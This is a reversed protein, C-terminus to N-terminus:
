NMFSSFLPEIHELAYVRDTRIFQLDPGIQWDADGPVAVKIIEQGPFRRAIERLPGIIFGDAANDRVTLWHLPPGLTAHFAILAPMGSNDFFEMALKYRTAFMELVLPRDKPWLLGKEILERVEGHLGTANGWVSSADGRLRSVDGVLRKDVLGNTGSVNGALDVQGWSNSHESQVSDLSEAPNQQFETIEETNTSHRTEM